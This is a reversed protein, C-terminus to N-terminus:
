LPSGFVLVFLWFVYFSKKMEIACLINQKTNNKQYKKLQKSTEMKKLHNEHTLGNM